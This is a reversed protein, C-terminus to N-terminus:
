DDARRSILDDINATVVIVRQAATMDAGLRNRQLIDMFIWVSQAPGQLTNSRHRTLVLVNLNLPGFRKIQGGVRQRRRDFGVAHIRHPRVKAVGRNVVVPHEGMLAIKESM